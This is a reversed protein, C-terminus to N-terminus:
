WIITSCLKNIKSFFGDQVGKNWGARKILKWSIALQVKNWGASIKINNYNQICMGEWFNDFDYKHLRKDRETKFNAGEIAKLWLYQPNSQFKGDQM